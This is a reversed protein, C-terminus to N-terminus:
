GWYQNNPTHITDSFADGLNDKFIPETSKLPAVPMNPIMYESLKSVKEKFDEFPIDKLIEAIKLPYGNDMLYEKCQSRNIESEYEKRISKAQRKLRDVVINDIEEQTYFKGDDNSEKETDLQKKVDSDEKEIQEEKEEVENYKINEEDVASDSLGLDEVLKEYNNMKKDEM